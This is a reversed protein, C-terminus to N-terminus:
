DIKFVIARCYVEGDELIDFEEHPVSTYYSWPITNGGDTKDECWKADVRLVNNQGNNGAVVGGGIMQGAVYYPIQIHVTGGRWVDTEDTIAGDIDMLDDSVGYIIVIRNEKAIMIEKESFQPYAYERGNLMKAFDKLKM